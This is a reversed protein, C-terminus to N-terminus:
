GISLPNQQQEFLTSSYTLEVLRFMGPHADVEGAVGFAGKVRPSTSQSPCNPFEAQFVQLRPAHGTGGGACVNASVPAFIFNFV